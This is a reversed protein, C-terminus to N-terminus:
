GSLNLESRWYLTGCKGGGTLTATGRGKSIGYRVNEGM